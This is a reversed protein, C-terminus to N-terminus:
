KGTRRPVLFSIQRNKRSRLARQDVSPITTQARRSSNPGRQAFGTPLESSEKRSAFWQNGVLNRGCNRIASGDAGAWCCRPFVPSQRSFKSVHRTLSASACSAWTTRRRIHCRHSLCRCILGNASKQSTNGNRSPTKMMPSITHKGSRKPVPLLCSLRTPLMPSTSSILFITAM